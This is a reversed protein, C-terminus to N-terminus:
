TGARRWAEPVAVLALAVVATGLLLGAPPAPAVTTVQQWADAVPHLSSVTGHECGRPSAGTLRARARDGVVRRRRRPRGSGCGRVAMVLAVLTFVLAVGFAASVATSVGHVPATLRFAATLAAAGVASGIRQGTLAGGAAGGM